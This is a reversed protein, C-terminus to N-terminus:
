DAKQQISLARKYLREAEDNRGQRRCLEALNNFTTASEPHNKGLTQEIIELARKHLGEAKGYESQSQYVVALNNIIDLILPDNSQLQECRKLASLFAAEAEEKRGDQFADVGSQVLDVLSTSDTPPEFNLTM